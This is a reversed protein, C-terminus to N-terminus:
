RLLSLLQNKLEFVLVFVQSSNIVLGHNKFVNRKTKEIDDLDIGKCCDDILSVRFGATLGDLASAGTVM